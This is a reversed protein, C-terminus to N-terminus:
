RDGKLCATPNCGLAGDGMIKAFALRAGFFQL